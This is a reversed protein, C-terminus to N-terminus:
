DIREELSGNNIQKGCEPCFKPYYWDTNEEGSAYIYLKNNRDKCVYLGVWSSNGIQMETENVKGDSKLSCFVCDM